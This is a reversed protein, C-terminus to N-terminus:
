LLSSARSVMGVNLCKEFRCFQCHNRRSKYIECEYKGVCVYEVNKKVSRKFFSKCGECTRAGYNVYTARDSCVECTTSQM